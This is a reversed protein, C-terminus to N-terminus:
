STSTSVMCICGIEWGGFALGLVRISEWGQEIEVLPSKVRLVRREESRGKSSRGRIGPM